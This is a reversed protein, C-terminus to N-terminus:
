GRIARSIKQFLNPNSKGAFGVPIGSNVNGKIIRSHLKLPELTNTRYVEIDKVIDNFSDDTFRYSAKREDVTIVIPHIGFEKLYKCFYMWRQVGSGSAPPWYYTIILVKKM